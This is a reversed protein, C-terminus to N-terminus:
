YRFPWLKLYEKVRKLLAVLGNPEVLIILIAIGGYLALNLAAVLGSISPFMPALYSTTVTRLGESLLQMFTAGVISGWIRGLGGILIMAIYTIAIGFDFQGPLIVGFFYVYLAGATGAYFSSIAFSLLKYRFVNIGLVEAANDNDRIAIFGRGVKSRVINNGLYVALIAIILMIYYFFIIKHESPVEFTAFRVPPLRLGHPIGVVPAVSPLHLIFFVLYHAVLTTIALYFGKIRLSPLGFVIGVATALLGGILLSPLFEMGLYVASVGAGYAGVAMLAVQGLSIQGTFGTLINLGIAGVIAICIWITWIVYRASLIFPFMLLFMLGLTFSIKQLPTRILKLDESYDTNFIGCPGAM